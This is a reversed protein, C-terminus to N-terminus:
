GDYSDPAPLRSRQWQLGKYVEQKLTGTCVALSDFQVRRGMRISVYAQTIPISLPFQCQCDSSSVSDPLQWRPHRAALTSIRGQVASSASHHARQPRPLFAQFGQLLGSVPPRSGMLGTAEGVEEQPTRSSEPSSVGPQLSSVHGATAQILISGM